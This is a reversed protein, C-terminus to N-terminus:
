SRIRRYGLYRPKSRLSQRIWTFWIDISACSLTRCICCDTQTVERRAWLVEPFFGHNVPKELNLIYSVIWALEEVFNDFFYLFFSLLWGHRSFHFIGAFLAAISGCSCRVDQSQQRWVAAGAPKWCQHPLFFHFIGAFLAAISGCSCWVDRPEQRWVAAGAPEWCTALAM